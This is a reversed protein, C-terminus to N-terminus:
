AFAGFTWIESTWYLFILLFRVGHIAWHFCKFSIFLASSDWLEVTPLKQFHLWLNMETTQWPAVPSAAWQSIKWRLVASCCYSPSLSLSFLFSIIEKWTIFKGEFILSSSKTILVQLIVKMEEKQKFIGSSIMVWSSSSNMSSLKRVNKMAPSDALSNNLHLEWQNQLSCCKLAPSSPWDAPIKYWPAPSVDLCVPSTLLTWKHHIPIPALTKPKHRKTNWLSFPLLHPSRSSVLCWNHHDPVGPSGKM